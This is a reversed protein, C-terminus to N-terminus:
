EKPKVNRLAPPIKSVTSYLNDLAEIIRRQQDELRSINRTIEDLKQQFLPSIVASKSNMEAIVKDQMILRDSLRDVQSMVRQQNASVLALARTGAMDVTDLRKGVEDNAKRLDIVSDELKFVHQSLPTQLNQVQSKFDSLAQANSAIRAEQQENNIVQFIVSFLAQGLVAVVLTALAGPNSLLREVFGRRENSDGDGVNM